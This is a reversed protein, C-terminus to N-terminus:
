FPSAIVREAIFSMAYVNTRVLTSIRVALQAVLVESGCQESM